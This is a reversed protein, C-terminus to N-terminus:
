KIDNLFNLTTFKHETQFVLYKETIDSLIKADKEPISFNYLGGFPSYVIHRMANMLTENLPINDANKNCTSCWVSGDAVSFYMIDDRFEGCNQCGVLNPCFGSIALVRLETIAKILFPNRKEETLFYLSNLILRLFEEQKEGNPEFVLSLECFYQSVALAEISSNTGFFLKIPTAETVRYTDGKKSLSFNSYSLLGTGSGRKSKINKAGSAYAKIIGNDKTLLTILRDAEGVKIEKIVLADLVTKM